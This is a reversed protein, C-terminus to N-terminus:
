QALQPAAVNGPLQSLVVLKELDAESVREPNPLPSGAHIPESRNVQALATLGMRELLPTTLQRISAGRTLEFASVEVGFAMNIAIQLQVAMLSDVGMDSLSQKVDIREPPIRLTEAIKEALMLEVIEFREEGALRRLSDALSANLGGNRAGTLHAFRLSKGGTPEFKGWQVWDVDMIGIQPPQFRLTSTLASMAVEPSFPTIGMLQFNRRLDEETAM